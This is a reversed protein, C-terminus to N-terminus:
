AVNTRFSVDSRRVQIGCEALKGSITDSGKANCRAASVMFFVM